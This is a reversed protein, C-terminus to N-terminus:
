FFMGCLASLAAFVIGAVIDKIFHIGCLVRTAGLIVALFILVISLPVSVFFATFAIVFASFTHRSPFSCGKTSKNYLPKIDYKEYPRPFNLLRRIISLAVFSILPILLIKLFNDNSMLYLFLLFLPYFIYISVTIAKGLIIVMQKLFTHNEFFIFIKKYSEENM